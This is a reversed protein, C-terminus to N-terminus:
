IVFFIRSIFQPDENVSRDEVPAKILATKTPTLQYTIRIVMPRKVGSCNSSHYTPPRRGQIGEVDALKYTNGAGKQILVLPGRYKPQLKTSIGTTTTPCHLM